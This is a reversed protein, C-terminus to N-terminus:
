LRSAPDLVMRFVQGDKKDLQKKDETKEREKEVAHEELGIVCFFAFFLGVFRDGELLGRKPDAKEDEETRSRHFMEMLLDNGVESEGDSRSGANGM